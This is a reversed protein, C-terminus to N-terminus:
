TVPSRQAGLGRQGDYRMAGRRRRRLRHNALNSEDLLLWSPLKAGPVWLYRGDDRHRWPSQISSLTGQIADYSTCGPM